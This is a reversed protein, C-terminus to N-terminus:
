CIVLSPISCIFKFKINENILLLIKQSLTVIIGGRNLLLGYYVIIQIMLQVNDDGDNWIMEKSVSDELVVMVGKLM